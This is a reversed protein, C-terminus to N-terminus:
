AALLPTAVQTLARPHATRAPRQHRLPRLATRSGRGLGPSPHCLRPLRHRTGPGPRGPPPAAGRRPPPLPAPPPQRVLRPRLRQRHPAALHRRRGPPAARRAERAAPPRRFPGRARALPGAGGGGRDPGGGAPRSRTVPGRPRLRAPFVPPGLHGPPRLPRITRPVQAPLLPAPGPRMPPRPGTEGSEPFWGHHHVETIPVGAGGRVVATRSGRLPGPRLATPALDNCPRIRRRFPEM